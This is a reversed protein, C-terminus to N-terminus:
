LQFDIYIYIYIYRISIFILILCKDFVGLLACLYNLRLTIRVQKLIISNVITSPSAVLFAVFTSIGSLIGIYNPALNLLTPYFGGTYAFDGIALTISIAAVVHWKTVNPVFIISSLSIIVMLNGAHLRTLHMVNNIKFASRNVLGETTHVHMWRFPPLM